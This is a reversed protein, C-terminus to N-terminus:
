RLAYLTNTVVLFGGVYGSYSGGPGYHRRGNEVDYVKGMLALLIGPQGDKGQYEALEASSFVRRKVGDDDDHIDGDAAGNSAASNTPEPSYLGSYLSRLSRMPGSGFFVAVVVVLLAICNRRTSM